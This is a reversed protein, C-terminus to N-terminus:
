IVIDFTVPLPLFKGSTGTSDQAAYIKEGDIQIENVTRPM